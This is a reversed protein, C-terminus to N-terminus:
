ASKVPAKQKKASSKYLKAITITNPKFAEAELQPDKWCAMSARVM